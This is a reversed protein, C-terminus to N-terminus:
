FNDVSLHASSLSDKVEKIGFQVTATLKSKLKHLQEALFNESIGM